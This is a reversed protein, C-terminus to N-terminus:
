KERFGSLIKYKNKKFQKVIIDLWWNHLLLFVIGLIGLALIGVWGNILLAFPLYLITCILFIALMYIWQTANVGQYNFAAKKTIDLGKYNRTAILCVLITHIGINFLYAAIEVPIIKWSIFGYCLSILFTITSIGIMLVIKSKIYEKISIDTTMMGDFHASQWAFLFQGYNVIFIGTIFIAGMLILGFENKDIAQPKYMIFGYLIFFASVMLIYRPRKNCLIMKFEIAVLEGIIGFRQLWSYNSIRNAKSSKADDELYLSKKLLLYNNYFSFFAWLLLLIVLWSHRLLATFVSTSLKRISFINFYDAAIFTITLIFFGVMWWSNIVTKRKIFLVLFHNGVSLAVISLIFIIAKASGYHAAINTTAFPIFLVLPLLNFLTFLSRVNLFGVLTKRKINQILYPQVALTPLDQLMFRMNIDFAFYYLIFGCFIKIADQEPFQHKIIGSLTFGVVIANALIYLIIFGIFIQVGVSKGAGRSRWFSKWQHSLLTLFINKM